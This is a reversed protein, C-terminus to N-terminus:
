LSPWTWLLDGAYDDGGAVFYAVVAGSRCHPTRCPVTCPGCEVDDDGPPLIGDDEM